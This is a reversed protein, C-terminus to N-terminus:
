KFLEQFDFAEIWRRCVRSSLNITLYLPTLRHAAYYNVYMKLKM